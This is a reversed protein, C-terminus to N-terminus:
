QYNAFVRNNGTYTGSTQGVRTKLTAGVPLTITLDTLDPTITIRSGAAYNLFKFDAVTVFDQGNTLHVEPQEMSVQVPLDSGRITVLGARPRGGVPILSNNSDTTLVNSAPDVVAMGANDRTFALTGFDLSTNVTIEVSRILKALIPMTATAAIAKVMAVSSLTVMVAGIGTKAMRAAVHGSSAKKMNPDSPSTM